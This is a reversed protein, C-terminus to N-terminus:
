TSRSRSLTLTLNAEKHMLHYIKPFTKKKFITSAKTLIRVQYTLGLLVIAIFLKLPWPWWVWIHYVGKFIKNEPVESDDHLYVISKVVRHAFFSLQTWRNSLDAQSDVAAAM